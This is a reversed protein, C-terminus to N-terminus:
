SVLVSDCKLPITNCLMLYLARSDSLVSFFMFVHRILRGSHWSYFFILFSFRKM